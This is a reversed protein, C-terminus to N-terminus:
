ACANPNFRRKEVDALAARLSEPDVEVGEGRRAQALSKLLDPDSAYLVRDQAQHLRTIAEQIEPHVRVRFTGATDPWDARVQFLSNPLDVWGNTPLRVGDISYKTGDSMRVDM